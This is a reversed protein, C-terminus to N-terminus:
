WRDWVYARTVVSILFVACCGYARAPSDVGIEEAVSSHFFGVVAEEVDRGIQYYHLFGFEWIVVSYCQYVNGEAEFVPDGLGNGSFSGV